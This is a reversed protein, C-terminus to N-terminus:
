RVICTLSYTHFEEANVETHKKGSYIELVFVYDNEPNSKKKEFRRWLLSCHLALCLWCCLAADVVVALVVHHLSFDVDCGSTLVVAACPSSPSVAPLNVFGASLHADAFLEGRKRLLRLSEDDFL